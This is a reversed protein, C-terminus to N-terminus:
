LPGTLAKLEARFNSLLAQTDVTPMDKSSLLDAQEWPDNFWDYLEETGQSDLIYHYQDTILSKMPGKSVAYWDPQGSRASVESLVAEPNQTQLCTAEGWHRTLSCGPFGGSDLGLLDFLTAGIDRLGVPANVRLGQPIRTPHILLLPVHLLTAYLSNGHSMLGHEAFEEGHDSTIVVITNRLVDRRELDNLLQGVQEDLYAICGEYAGQLERVAEMRRAEPKPVHALPSEKGTFEVGYPSPPQYPDHADYYNLFAFFPSADKSDLWRLFRGNIQVASRRGLDERRIKLDTVLTRGFSTTQLAESPTVHYDEYHVFGRGLGFERACFLTNGVFGATHYNNAALKEAFTPYTKDLPTWWNASLRGAQMGTFMAAHSPLTWPAPAVAHTFLVGQHSLRDLNPTTHRHHGLLSLSQARVTDLVIFLVNPTPRTAPLLRANSRQEQFIPGTRTAIAVSAIGASAGILFQRRTPSPHPLNGRAGIRAPTEGTEPVADNRSLTRGSPHRSVFIPWGLSFHVIRAFTEPHRTAWRTFQLAIGAALIALAVNSINPVMLVLGLVALWALAFLAIRYTVIRPWRRHVLHLVGGLGLFIALNSVPILWAYDHSIGVPEGRFGKQYVVVATQGWGTFLGLWGAATLIGARSRHQRLHLGWDKAWSWNGPLAFFLGSGALLTGIVLLALQKAGFASGGGSGIGLSDAALSVGVAAVGLCIAATPLLVRLRKKGAFASGVTRWSIKM